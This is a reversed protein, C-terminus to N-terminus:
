IKFLNIHNLLHSSFSTGGLVDIKIIPTVAFVLLLVGDELLTRGLDVLVVLSVRVRDVTVVVNQLPMLWTYDAESLFLEILKWEARGFDIIVAASACNNM